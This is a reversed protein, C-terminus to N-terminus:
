IMNRNENTLVTPIVPRELLAAVHQDHIHQLMPRRDGLRGDTV